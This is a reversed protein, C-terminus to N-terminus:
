DEMMATVGDKVEGNVSVASVAWGPGTIWKLWKEASMPEAAGWPPAAAMWEALEQPDAFAPSIPSGESVTEWVQYAEGAPPGEREWEEAWQEAEKPEWLRGHGDCTPCTVPHGERACRAKICVHSNISDHGLTGINWGNVEDATPVYGNPYPLWHGSHAEASESWYEDATKEPNGADVDAKWLGYAYERIYQEMPVSRLPRRTFDWLREDDVLAQVDEQILHHNWQYNYMSLLRDIEREVAEDRTLEGNNTYYCNTGDYTTRRRGFVMAKGAAADAISRDVQQEVWARLVPHQPTILKSGYAVPDFHVHGYWQAYYLNAMKAYGNGSCDPCHYSHKTHPNLYGPWVKEIPHDFGVPVRKIERGM